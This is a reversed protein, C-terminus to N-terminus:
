STWLASEANVIRKNGECQRGTLSHLYHGAYTRHSIWQNRVFILLNRM